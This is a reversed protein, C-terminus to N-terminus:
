LAKHAGGGRFFVTNSRDTAFVHHMLTVKPASPVTCVLHTTPPYDDAAPLFGRTLYTSSFYTSYTTQAMDEPQM